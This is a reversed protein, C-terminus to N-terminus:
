PSGGRLRMEEIDLLQEDLADLRRRMREAHEDFADGEYRRLERLEAVAQQLDDRFRRFAARVQPSAADDTALDREFARAWADMADIETDVVALWGDRDGNELAKEARDELTVPDGPEAPSPGRRDGCGALLLFLALARARM